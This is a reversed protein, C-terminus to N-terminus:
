MGYTPSPAGFSGAGTPGAIAAHRGAGAGAGGAGGAGMIASAATTLGATVLKVTAFRKAMKGEHAKFRAAIEFGKAEEKSAFLASLVNYDTTTKIDALIDSEVMGGGAAMAAVADSAVREGIKRQNYAEHTGAAKRADGALRLQKAEADKAKKTQAGQLADFGANVMTMAAIPVAAAGM